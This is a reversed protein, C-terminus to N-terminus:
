ASVLFEAHERQTHMTDATIVAGALDPNELLPAFQTIENTKGDVGTQALVASAQQGIVALWSGVAADLAAADVSELVRRITAETVPNATWTM